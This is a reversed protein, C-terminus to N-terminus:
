CSTSGSMVDRFSKSFQKQSRESPHGDIWQKQLLSLGGGFFSSILLLQL